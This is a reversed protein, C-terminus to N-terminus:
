PTSGGPGGNLADSARRMIQAHRAMRDKREAAYREPDRVELHNRVGIIIVQSSLGAEQLMHEPMKIRGESDVASYRSLPFITSDFEQRSEGPVLTGELAGSLREFTDEPWVWFSMDTLPVLFFAASMDKKEMRSRIEAPIALLDGM